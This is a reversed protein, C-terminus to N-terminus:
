GDDKGGKIIRSFIETDTVGETGILLVRSNMDLGLKERLCPQKSACVLVALGAVASEGAKIVPNNGEPCALLRVTRPM